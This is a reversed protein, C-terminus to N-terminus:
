QSSAVLQHRGYGQACLREYHEETVPREAADLAMLAAGAVPMLVPLTPVCRPATQRLRAITAEALPSSLTRFAGGTLVFPFAVDQMGLRRAVAAGAVGLEDGIRHLIGTAVADGLAAAQFVLRTAARRTDRTVRGRYLALYLAAVDPQVTLDLIMQTLMTPEGRGQWARIVARIADIAIQNGGGADGFEYGLDPLM